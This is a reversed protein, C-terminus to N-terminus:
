NRLYAHPNAAFAAVCALSCFWYEVADVRLRGAARTREVRM